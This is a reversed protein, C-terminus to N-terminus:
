ALHEWAKIMFDDDGFNGSKLALLLADGNGTRAITWPVGPAIEPGIALESCGLAHVAAGSTEGGAVVLARVGHAVLYASVKGLIRELAASADGGWEERQRRVDEPSATSYILLTEGSDQGDIWQCVEELVQTETREAGLHVRFSPYIELARALQRRTAQSCSGAVIARGGQVAPLKASARVAEKGAIARAIGAGLGSGGTSLPVTACYSGLLRLDNDDVADAILAVAGESCKAAVAQVITGDVIQPRAILDVKSHSQAQLVRVLNSDAMPNLPHHRMGSESLLQTGVFLYGNFVTRGTAPFAPCAIVGTHGLEDALAELVPGINGHETSDFTSCYKFYIRSAGAEKLWRMASLSQSVALDPEISRSKLAVVVAKAGSPIAVGERRDGVVLVAELGNAALENALDSAGTLDDAICGLEM